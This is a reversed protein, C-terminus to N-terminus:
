SSAPPKWVHKPFNEVRVQPFFISFFSVIKVLMKQYIPNFGGVERGSVLIAGQFHITPISIEKQPAINTEHLTSQENQKRMKSVGWLAMRCSWKQFDEELARVFSLFVKTLPM